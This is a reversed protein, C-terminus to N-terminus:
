FQGRISTTLPLWMLSLSAARLAGINGLSGPTTDFDFAGIGARDNANGNPDSPYGYHTIKIGGIATQGDQNLLGGITNAASPPFRAPGLNRELRKKMLRM